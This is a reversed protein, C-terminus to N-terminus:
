LAGLRGSLILGLIHLFQSVCAFLNLAWKNKASEM